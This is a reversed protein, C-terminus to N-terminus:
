AHFNGNLDCEGVAKNVTMFKTDEIKAKKSSDFFNLVDIVAQPNKKQETPSINSATLLKTWEDPMGTFEGTVPDFGVHVTHEFQTPLSIEPKKKSQPFLKPFAMKKKKENDSPPVNPLPKEFEKASANRVPPPPPREEEGSSDM